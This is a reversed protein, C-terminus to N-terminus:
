HDLLGACDPIEVERALLFQTDRNTSLSQASVDRGSERLRVSSLSLLEGSMAVCTRDGSEREGKLHLDVAEHLQDRTSGDIAITAEGGTPVRYRAPVEIQPM